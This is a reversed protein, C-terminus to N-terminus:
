SFHILINQVFTNLIVTFENSMSKAVQVAQSPPVLSTISTLQVWPSNRMHEKQHHQRLYTAHKEHFFYPQDIKTLFPFQIVLKQQNLNLEWTVNTSTRLRVETCTLHLVLLRLKKQNETQKKNQKKTPSKEM